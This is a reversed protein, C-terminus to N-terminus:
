EWDGRSSNGICALIIIILLPSAILSLLVWIAANRHRRKAMVGVLVYLGVICGLFVIALVIMLLITVGHGGATATTAADTNTQALALLTFTLVFLLTYIKKM